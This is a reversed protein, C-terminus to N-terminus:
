ARLLARIFTLAELSAREFLRPAVVLLSALVSLSLLMKLPFALNVLQIQTHLRGLVALSVDVLVMLGAIPLALRLGVSLVSGALKLVELAIAATPTFSGPPYVILSSALARMLHSDLGVAFFLLGALLQAVVMLVGSDAQTTPDIISAYGYGAQLSLVQAAFVLTESVFAVALGIATGLALEKLMFAVLTALSAVPHTVEPWYSYVSLTLAVCLMIRAPVPGAQAGPLPVFAFMGTLRTLVLLFSVLTSVSFVVDGPM